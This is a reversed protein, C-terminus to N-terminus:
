YEKKQKGKLLVSVYAPDQCNKFTQLILYFYNFHTIYQNNNPTRQLCFNDFCYLLTPFINWM